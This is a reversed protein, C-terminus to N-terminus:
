KKYPIGEHDLLIIKKQIGYRFGTLSGKAGLVRHCPILIPIPNKGVAAGIAQASMKEVDMRIALERAITGYSVTQGFPIDMLLKWVSKQFDTGQPEMAINHPTPAFGENYINMWAKVEQLVPVQEGPLMTQLDDIEDPATLRILKGDRSVAYFLGIKTQIPIYYNM